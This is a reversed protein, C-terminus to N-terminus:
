LLCRLSSHFAAAEGWFTSQSGFYGSLAVPLTVVNVRTLVLAFLFENPPQFRQSLLWFAFNHDGTSFRELSYGAPCAVILVLLARSLTVLLSRGLANASKNTLM